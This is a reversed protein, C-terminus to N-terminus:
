GEGEAFIKVMRAVWAQRKPPMAGVLEVIERLDETVSMSLAVTDQEKGMASPPLLDAPNVNLAAAMQCLRSASIRNHGREYKQVQQFSIGVAKGLAEQSIGLAARFSRLRQGVEVDIPDPTQNEGSM